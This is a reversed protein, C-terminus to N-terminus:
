PITEGSNRWIKAVAEEGMRKLGADALVKAVISCGCARKGKTGPNRTPKFEFEVCVGKVVKAIAINRLSNVAAKRGSKGSIRWRRHELIGVILERIIVEIRDTPLRFGPGHLYKIAETIMVREAEDDKINLYTRELEEESLHDNLDADWLKWFDVDSLIQAPTLKDGTRPSVQLVIERARDSLLKGRAYAMAAALRDDPKNM